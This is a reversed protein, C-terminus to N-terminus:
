PSSIWGRGWQILEPKDILARLENSNQPLTLFPGHKDCAVIFTGDHEYEDGWPHRETYGHDTPVVTAIEIGSVNVLRIEACPKNCQRGRGTSKTCHLKM